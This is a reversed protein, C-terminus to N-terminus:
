HALLLHPGEAANVLARTTGGLAFEMLRPRGYAGAVLLGCQETRAAQLLSAAINDGRVSKSVANSVGNDKLFRMIPKPDFREVALDDSNTVVIVSSAAQLLPLAARVARAAQFSGDWAIAIRTVDFPGRKIILVPAQMGLLAAAFLESLLFVDTAAAGGFVTIDALPSLAKLDNAPILARLRVDFSGAGEGKWTLGEREAASRGVAEVQGQVEKEAERVHEIAGAKKGPALATGYGIYDAAADPFAPVVIVAAGFKAALKTSAAFVAADEATGSAVTVITKCTM